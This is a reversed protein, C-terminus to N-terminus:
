STWTSCTRTPRTRRAPRRGCRGSCRRARPRGAGALPGVGHDRPLAPLGAERERRGGQRAAALGRAAARRRGHRGPQRLLEGRLPPRRDAPGGRRAARPRPHLGHPHGRLVQARLAAHRERQDRGRDVGRDGPVGAATGPIKIFINPRGIREFFEPAGAISAQTDNAMARRCSSRSSGTSIAPVRRLRAPDPRGGRARGRDRARLLRRCPKRGAVAAVRGRQRLRELGAIAKQFITPNSTVGVVGEDVMRRFEGSVLWGRRINDLWPSTGAAALQKLTNTM